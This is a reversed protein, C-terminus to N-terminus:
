FDLYLDFRYYPRPSHKHYAEGPLFLGVRSIISVNSLPKFQYTFDFESGLYRKPFDTTSDYVAGAKKLRRYNYFDLSIQHEQDAEEDEIRYTWGAHQVEINSLRPSYSLGSDTYGMYFFNSDTGGIRSGNRTGIETVSGRDSDGTGRKYDYQVVGWDDPTAWQLNFLFARSMLAMHHRVEAFSSIRGAGYVLETSYRLDPTLAGRLGAYHFSLNQEFYQNTRVVKETQDRVVVRGYYPIHRGLGLYNVQLGWVAFASDGGAPFAPNPHDDSEVSRGGYATVDLAKIRTNVRAGDLVKAFVLGQGAVAYYRGVTARYSDGRSPQGYAFFGLDLKADSRSHHDGQTTDGSRFDLRSTKFRIYFDLENYFQVRGWVRLQDAWLAIYSRSSSKFNIFTARGIGGADWLIQEDEHESRIVESEPDLKEQFEFEDRENLNETGLEQAQVFFGLFISLFFASLYFIKL